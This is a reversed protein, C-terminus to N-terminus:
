EEKRPAGGQPDRSLSTEALACVNRGMELEDARAEDPKLLGANVRKIDLYQPPFAPLSALIHRVFEERGRPALEPNARKLEGLRAAFLGDPRAEQPSSFHGPLVLTDDPLTLLREFLSRYHLPAWAEGRGGLDPRAISRLFITDGSFLFSRGGESLLLAVAGLTHGPVHLARLRADGLQFELGDFLWEYPIAAPLVDTPHIGDYPHLFYPEGTAEALAPGGSIHDAHAHTDIIHLVAVEERRLLELVPDLHRPPDIVIAMGGERHSVVHHLCGRAARELQWIRVAGTAEPVTHLDYFRGWAAMGGDLNLADRGRPRLVDNVVWASSGGKACVAVVPRGSPVAALAADADELFDFYPVNATPPTHRGEIKSRAFEDRNRVDLLVFPEGRDLMGKLEAPSLETKAAPTTM